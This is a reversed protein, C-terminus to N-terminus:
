VDWLALDDAVSLSGFYDDHRDFVATLGQPEESDNPPSSWRDIALDDDDTPRPMLAEIEVTQHRPQADLVEYYMSQVIVAFSDEFLMAEIKSSSRDKMSSNAFAFTLQPNSLSM